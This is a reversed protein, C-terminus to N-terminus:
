FFSCGNNDDEVKIQNPFYDALIKQQEMTVIHQMLRASLEVESIAETTRVEAWVSLINLIGELKQRTRDEFQLAMFLPAILQALADHSGLHDLVEQLLLLIQSPTSQEAQLSLLAGLEQKENLQIAISQIAILVQITSKEADRIRTTLSANAYNVWDSALETSIHGM